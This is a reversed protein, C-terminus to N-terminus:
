WVAQIGVTGALTAFRDWRQGSIEVYLNYIDCFPHSLQLAGEFGGRRLHTGDIVFESGFDQFLVHINGDDRRFRHLWAVDLSLYIADCIGSLPQETTVHLGLRSFPSVVSHGHITLDVVGTGTENIESFRYSGVEVGVFPQVLFGSGHLNIGGEAYAVGQYIHGNGRATLDTTGFVIRRKVSCSSYGVVLDSLLYFFSRNYAGYIAAQGTNLQANGGLAFTLEDHEYNAAMGFTWDQGYYQQAGIAYDYHHGSFGKSNSDGRLFDRGGQFDTWVELSTSEGCPDRYERNLANFRIPDYLERLFRRGTIESLDILSTYQEGSLQNLANRIQDFSLSAISDLLAIEAPTPNKISDIQNAVNQENSTRAVAIFNTAFVLFVDNPGYLLSPLFIPNTSQVGSYTGIVGGAAHLIDYKFDVLAGNIPTAVVTGGNITATGSINTLTSAGSTDVQVDYFSGNNQVFNGLVNITGISNGPSLRGGSNITLNGLLTGVGTLAGSSNVFVNGGLQNNGLKLKGENIFTSGLFAGDNGTLTLVGKGRKTFTASSIGSLQGAYTGDFKQDFILNSNDVINGQLSNTDGKLTGGLITTGGSYSNIGTFTVTGTDAAALLVSGTTGSINGAYTGDFGQNFILRGNDLINGQISTTTGQLTSGLNITTGGSYSNAGSFTVIGTGAITVSGAQSPSTLNSITGSYTGDFNQNFTVNGGDFINGQITNTSGQLTGSLITTGGNYNYPGFGDALILTSGGTLTLSGTGKISGDYIGYLTQNFTVNSPLASGIGNNMQISGPHAVSNPITFSNGQLTGSNITIGGTFGNAATLIVTGNNTSDLVLKGTGGMVGSYNGSAIGSISQDFIVTGNNTINGQVSKTSGELTTLTDVTTLGSYINAGTFTVTGGGTITVNGNSTGNSIVGAYTGTTSQNFVLTASDTINGQLSTTNGSLTGANVFTGGLYSNTGTIAYTGSGVKIFGGGGSINGAFTGFANLSGETLTVGTGITGFSTSDGTLSGLSTNTTVNFNAGSQLDVIPSSTNANTSSVSLVANNSLNLFAPAGPSTGLDSAGMFSLTAASTLGQINYIGSGAGNGITTSNAFTIASGNGNANYTVLSTNGIDGSGNIFIFSSTAPVSIFQMQTGSNLVGLQSTMTQGTGVTITYPTNVLFQIEQVSFAATSIPTFPGTATGDFTAIDSPGPAVGGVWNGGLNLNETTTTNSWAIPAAEVVM